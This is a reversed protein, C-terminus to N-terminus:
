SLADAVCNDEGKVYMIKCDYQSLFEMWRAQRRSLDKQTAFNELTKHDTYITFPVGILDSRWRRLARIIALMEKEHVPYNLEAGKFTMSDFAVPRATEWSTGFSLVGGSQYDSADTTVFIKNEPMKDHDITTLCERSLVAEKIKKFATEYKESWAPFIADCEKLTLENLIRTHETIGPLFTAVYRVLGLFQRVQTASQPTPWNVIREIKKGDAEIGKSSVHHGLFDIETEFLHTKRPNCYLGAARLAGLITDVNKIHEEMTDSWIIIDDLYIHCIKGIWQRLAATVRRQHIAPANKLGMPMVLWEYLGFPTSVATLHIDDPHLKTQFFSNTMDIVGWIKGKACDNLIDDVRPLPHADAITNENLARYDNVWRPLVTPDAKPIIFAPSAHASCSPRIRGAELHQEILTRWAERYKRPCQSPLRRLRFESL